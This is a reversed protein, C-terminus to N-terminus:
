LPVRPMKWTMLWSFPGPGAFHLSLRVFGDLSPDQEDRADVLLGLFVGYVVQEGLVAGDFVESQREVALGTEDLAVSQDFVFIDLLCLLGDVLEVAM